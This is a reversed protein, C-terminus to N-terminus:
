SGYPVGNTLPGSAPRRGPAAKSEPATTGVGLAQDGSCGAEKRAGVPPELLHRSPPPSLGSWSLEMLQGWDEKCGRHGPRQGEWRWGAKRLCEGRGDWTREPDETPKAGSPFPGETGVWM